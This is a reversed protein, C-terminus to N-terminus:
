RAAAVSMTLTFPAGSPAASYTATTARAIADHQQQAASYLAQDECSLAASAGSIHIEGVQACLREATKWVRHRLAARGDKTTLDLDRYSIAATLSHEFPRENHGVITFEGESGQGFASPGAAVCGIACVVGLLSSSMHHTLKLM